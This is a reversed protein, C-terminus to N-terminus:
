EYLPLSELTREGEPSAIPIGIHYGSLYVVAIDLAQEGPVDIRRRLRVASNARESVGAHM